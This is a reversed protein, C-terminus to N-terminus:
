RQEKLVIEPSCTCTPQRKLIPCDDDHLIDVEVLGPNVTTGRQRLLELTREAVIADLEIINM